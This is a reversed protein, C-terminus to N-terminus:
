LGLLEKKKVDFEEQTIINMDLLEKYKKIEEIPSASSQANQQASIEEDSIQILSTSHCSPCHSYDVITALDKEVMQQQQMASFISNNNLSKSINAIAKQANEAKELNKQVDQLSYCFIHGCVQCKMRIEKKMEPNVKVPEPLIEVVEAPEAHLMKSKAIEVFSKLHEKQGKEAIFTSAEIAGSKNGAITLSGFSYKISVRYKQLNYWLVINKWYTM